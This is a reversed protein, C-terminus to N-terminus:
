EDQELAELISDHSVYDDCEGAGDWAKTTRLARVREITARLAENEAALTDREAEVEAVRARWADAVARDYGARIRMHMDGEREDLAAALTDLDDLARIAFLYSADNGTLALARRWAAREEPTTKLNPM